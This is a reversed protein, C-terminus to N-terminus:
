NLEKNQTQKRLHEIVVDTTTKIKLRCHSTETSAFTGTESLKNVPSGGGCFVFYECAKRCNAVGRQVEANIELFNPQSLMDELSNQLVNGFLFNAYRPHSLTLLEPSLTSINGDCDFSIVALPTNAQSRLPYESHKVREILLDLERIFPPHQCQARLELIRQLFTTYQELDHQSSLPITQVTGPIFDNSKRPIKRVPYGGNVPMLPPTLNGEDKRDPQPYQLLAEELLFSVSKIDRELLFQWLADPDALTERTLVMLIGPSIGNKHLLEINQMIRAFTGRGARDVRHADHIQQPGDLSISIEIQHANIFDCWRQTIHTGNTQFVCSVPLKRTNYQGILQLAEEYFRVPLTMPEGAHWVIRVREALLSSTFIAQLVRSLTDSSMRRRAQREPLYCYDCNINCFSTPQIIFEQTTSGSLRAQDIAM